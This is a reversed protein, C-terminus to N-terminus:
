RLLRIAATSEGSDVAKGRAMAKSPSKTASNIRASIRLGSV